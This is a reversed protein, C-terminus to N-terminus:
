VYVLEMICPRWHSPSCKNLQSFFDNTNCSPEVTPMGDCFAVWAWGGLWVTWFVVSIDFFYHLQWWESTVGYSHIRLIVNNKTASSTGFIQIHNWSKEFIQPGGVTTGIWLFKGYVSPRENGNPGRYIGFSIAVHNVLLFCEFKWDLM